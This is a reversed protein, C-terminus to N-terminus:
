KGLSVVCIVLGVEQASGERYMFEFASSDQRKTRMDDAPIFFRKRSEQKVDGGGTLDVMSGTVDIEAVLVDRTRIREQKISVLTLRQVGFPQDVIYFTGVKLTPTEYRYTLKPPKPEDPAKIEPAPPAAAAEINPGARSTLRRGINILILAAVPYALVGLIGLFGSLKDWQTIIGVGVAIVACAVQIMQGRNSFWKGSM